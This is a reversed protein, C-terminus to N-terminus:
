RRIESGLDTPYMLGERDVEYREVAHIRDSLYLDPHEDDELTFSSRRRSPYISIRSRRAPRM